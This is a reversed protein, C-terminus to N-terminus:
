KIQKQYQLPTLGFKKHFRKVFYPCDSFGCRLGTEQVSHGTQLLKKAEAFRCAEIYLSPSTQFYTSFYRNLTSSSIFFANCVATVNCGPERFHRGIYVLIEAFRIPLNQAAAKAPNGTCLMDLIGFFHHASRYGLGEGGQRARYLGFCHAILTEKDEASLAILRQKPLQAAEEPPLGKIWICFHEHVCDSHFICRHLTNPETFIVDGRTIGYIRDEVRFSVDGSVNVYLEYGDHLHDTDHWVDDVTTFQKEYTIELGIASGSLLPLPQPVFAM